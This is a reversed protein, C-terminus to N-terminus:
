STCTLYRLFSVIPLHFYSAIFFVAYGVYCHTRALAEIAATKREYDEADAGTLVFVYSRPQVYTSQMARVIAAM